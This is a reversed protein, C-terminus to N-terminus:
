QSFTFTVESHDDVVQPIYVEGRGVTDAGERLKGSLSNRIYYGMLLLIVIVITLLVVYDLIGQGKKYHKHINKELRQLRNNIVRIM